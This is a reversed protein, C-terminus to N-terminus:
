PRLADLHVPKRHLSRTDEKTLTRFDSTKQAKLFAQLMAPEPAQLSRTELNIWAGLIECYARNNGEADFFRHEFEFFLGDESLGKLLLSVQLPQGPLVEKFYHIHEHFVVPGLKAKKLQHLGLGIEQLFAMRTHSMMNMYASNALHSNADLDSWRVEFSKLFM